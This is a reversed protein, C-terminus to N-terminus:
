TVPCYQSLVATDIDDGTIEDRHIKDDAPPLAMIADRQTDLYDLDEQEINGYDYDYYLALLTAHLRSYGEAQWDAPTWLACDDPREDHKM